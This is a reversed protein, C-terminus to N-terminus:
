SRGAVRCMAPCAGRIELMAEDGKIWLLVNGDSYRAGSGSVVQPLRVERDILSVVALEPEFRVKFPAAGDCTYTWVLQAAAQEGPSPARQTHQACGATLLAAALAALVCPPM